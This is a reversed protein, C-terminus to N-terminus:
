TSTFKIGRKMIGMVKRAKHEIERVTYKSLLMLHNVVITYEQEIYEKTIPFMDQILFASELSDDM